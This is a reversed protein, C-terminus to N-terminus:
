APTLTQRRGHCAPSRPAACGPSRPSTTSRISGTRRSPPPAYLPGDRPPRLVGGTRPPGWGMGPRPPKGTGGRPAGRQAAWLLPKRKPVRIEVDAAPNGKLAKCDNLAARLVATVRQIRTE